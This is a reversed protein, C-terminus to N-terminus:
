DNTTLFFVWTFRSYDDTVVLCYKKHMLSSVFTPGFLDMHLMFLPKTIPNLVKSKCSARHQKGKLCAVCTQDNKFHKTPLGRVLNDKVLKNINKFNIHGLRRHWLMSEDLTAKAVLCTLSEKPVINKMDFSYMNDKRPIKLLIQTEDPLKFNPSLVLCETDTFLVYNKKDCMQSVSFLNFKLENVFYVDEFDLSDTKLTGKGSIRGGHAGGRFTVYGRDFEKFDSLYDINGIMHRSCGNSRGRADIYNHRKFALSAGIPKTPRWVWCASNKVVNIRKARVDNVPETYSRATNGARPRETHYHRMATNVYRSTLTTQKYFPRKATSQAQKSFHSM